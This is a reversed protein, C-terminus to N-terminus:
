RDYKFSWQERKFCTFQNFIFIIFFYFGTFRDFCWKICWGWYYLSWIGSWKHCICHESCQNGIQQLTNGGKSSIICYCVIQHRSFFCLNHYYIDQQLLILKKTIIKKKLCRPVRNSTVASSHLSDIGKEIQALGPLNQVSTSCWM